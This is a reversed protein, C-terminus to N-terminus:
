MSGAGISQLAPVLLNKVEEVSRGAIQAADELSMGVAETGVKLALYDEALGLTSDPVGLIRGLSARLVPAISAVGAAVAAGMVPAWPDDIDEDKMVKKAVWAGALARPLM